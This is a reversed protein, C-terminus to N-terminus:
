ICEKNNAQFWWHDRDAFHMFLMLVSNGEEIDERWHLQDEGYFLVAGNSDLSYPVGEIFLPWPKKSTLCIDITYTCANNDKHKKLTSGNDNYLCALAYTFLLDPNNFEERARDMELMALKNIYPHHLRYRKFESDYDWYSKPFSRLTDIIKQRKSESYFNDIVKPELLKM